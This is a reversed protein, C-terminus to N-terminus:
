EYQLTIRNMSQKKRCDFIAIQDNFSATDLANYISEYHYSIDIYIMKNKPNRWLGLYCDGNRIKKANDFLFQNISEITLDKVIIGNKASVIFGSDHNAFDMYISEAKHFVYGLFITAGNHKNFYSQIDKFQKQNIM